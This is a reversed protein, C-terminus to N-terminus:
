TTINSVVRVIKSTGGKGILQLFLTTWASIQFTSLMAGIVLLSALYVLFALFGVILYGLVTIKSLFFGILLFPTFLILVAFLYAISVALGIIFLIFAMEISIIWNERFLQWGNKISDLFKKNKIVAFAIAYKIIFSFSLVAVMLAAFVVIYIIGSIIPGLKSALLIIPFGVLGLAFVVAVKLVVNLGFVPWFNKIGALMGSKFAGKKNGIHQSVNNVLAAQSVTSLWVLFLSIALVVLGLLLLIVLSITDAKAVELFNSFFEKGTVGSDKFGAFINQGVDGNLGKILVEYQGGGLLAAFLGFFWLYKYQWTISWAQRLLNRYLSM